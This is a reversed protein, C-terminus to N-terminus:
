FDDIFTFIVYNSEIADMRKEVQDIKNLICTNMENSMNAYDHLLEIRKKLPEICTANVSQAVFAFNFFPYIVVDFNVHVSSNM